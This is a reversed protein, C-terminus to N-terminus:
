IPYTFNTTMVTYLFLKASDILIEDFESEIKNRFIKKKLIKKNKFIKASKTNSNITSIKYSVINNGYLNLYFFPHGNFALYISSYQIAGFILLKLCFNGKFIWNNVHKVKKKFLFIVYIENMKKERLEALSAANLIFQILLLHNNFSPFSFRSISLMFDISQSRYWICLM